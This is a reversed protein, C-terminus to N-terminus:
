RAASYALTPEGTIGTVFRRPIIGPSLRKVGLETAIRLAVKRGTKKEVKVVAGAEPSEGIQVADGVNISLCLM